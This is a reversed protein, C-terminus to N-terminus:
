IKNRNNNIPEDEVAQTLQKYAPHYLISNDVFSILPNKTLRDILILIPEGMKADKNYKIHLNTCDLNKQYMNLYANAASLKLFSYFNAAVIENFTKIVIEPSKIQKIKMKGELTELLNQFIAIAKQAAEIGSKTRSPVTPQETFLNSTSLTPLITKVIPENNERSAYKYLLDSLIIQNKDMENLIKDVTEPVLNKKASNKLLALSLQNFDNDNFLTELNNNINKLQRDHTPKFTHCALFEKMKKFRLNLQPYDTLISIPIKNELNELNDLILKVNGNNNIDFNRNKM